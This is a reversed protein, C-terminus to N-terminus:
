RELGFVVPLSDPAIYTCHGAWAEYHHHYQMPPDPLDADAPFEVNSL